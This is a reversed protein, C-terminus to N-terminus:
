FGLGLVLGLDVVLYRMAFEGKTPFDVEVRGYRVGPNLALRTAVPIQIGAGAELGWGRDSEERVPIAGSATFDAQALAAVTGLRLWPVVGEKRLNLRIALDWATSVLSTKGGCGIAPCGFRHESFGVLYSIRGSTLAFHVGFTADTSAEGEFGEPGSLEQVPLAAGGNVELQFASVQAETAMPVALAVAFAVLPHLPRSM